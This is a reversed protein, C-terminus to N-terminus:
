PPRDAKALVGDRAPTSWPRLTSERPQDPGLVHVVKTHDPLRRHHQARGHRVDKQRIVHGPHHQLQDPPTEAHRVGQDSEHRGKLITDDEDQSPLYPSRTKIGM